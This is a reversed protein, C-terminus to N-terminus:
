KRFLRALPAIISGLDKIAKNLSDLDVDDLKKVTEQISEESTKVLSNIDNLMGEFNTKALDTTINELNKVVVATDDIVTATDDLMKDTKDIMDGTQDIMGVVDAIVDNAQGIIENAQGIIENAQLVVENTDKILKNADNAVQTVLPVFRACVILLAAVLVLCLFSTCLAFISQRKAHKNAKDNEHKIEVLLQAIIKMDNDKVNSVMSQLQAETLDQPKGALVTPPATLPTANNNVEKNEESM